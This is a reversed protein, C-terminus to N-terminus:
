WTIINRLFFYGCHVRIIIISTMAANKSLLGELTTQNVFHLVTNYVTKFFLGLSNFDLFTHKCITPIQLCVHKQVNGQKISTSHIHQAKM